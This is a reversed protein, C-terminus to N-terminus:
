RLNDLFTRGRGSEWAEGVARSFSEQPEPRPSDDPTVWETDLVIEDDAPWDVM